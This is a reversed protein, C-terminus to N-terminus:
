NEQYVKENTLVEINKRPEKLLKVKLVIDKELKEELYLWKLYARITGVRINATTKTVKKENIQYSIYARFIIPTLETSEPIEEGQIYEKFYRFHRRYDYLSRNALGKVEKMFYFEDFTRFFDGISFGHTSLECPGLKGGHKLTLAKGAM